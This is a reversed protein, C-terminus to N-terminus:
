LKVKRVTARGFARSDKKKQESRNKQLLLTKASGLARVAHLSVKGGGSQRKFAADM